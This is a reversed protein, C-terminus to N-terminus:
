KSKDKTDTQTTEDKAKKQPLNKIKPTCSPGREVTPNTQATTHTLAIKTAPASGRVTGCVREEVSTQLRPDIEEDSSESDSISKSPNSQQQQIKEAM